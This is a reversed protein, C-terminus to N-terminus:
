NELNWINNIELKCGLTLEKRNVIVNDIEIIFENIDKSYYLKTYERRITNFIEFIHNPNRKVVKELQNSTFISGLYIIKLLFLRM